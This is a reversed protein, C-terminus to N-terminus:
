GVQPENRNVPFRSFHSRWYVERAPTIAVLTLSSPARGQGGQQSAVKPLGGIDAIRGISQRRPICSHRLPIQKWQPFFSCGLPEAAAPAPPRVGVRTEGARDSSVRASGPWVATAGDGGFDM